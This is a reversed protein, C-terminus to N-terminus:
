AAFPAFASLSRSARSVGAVHAPAHRKRACARLCLRERGGVVQQRCAGVRWNRTTSSGSGEFGSPSTAAHTNQGRASGRPFPRAPRALSRRVLSRPARRFHNPSSACAPRRGNAGATEQGCASGDRRPGAALSRTRSRHRPESKAGALMGRGAAAEIREFESCLLPQRNVFIASIPVPVPNSAKAASASQGSARQMAVSTSVTATSTARSLAAILRMDRPWWSPSSSSATASPM